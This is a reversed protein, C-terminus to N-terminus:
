DDVHEVQSVLAPAILLLLPVLPLVPAAPWDITPYPEYRFADVNARLALSTLVISLLAAASVLHDHRTAREIIYRTPRMSGGVPQHRLALIGVVLAAVGGWGAWAIGTVLGYAGVLGGGLLLVWATGSSWTSQVMRTSRSGFGRAELVEAMRMSRDLGGAIVPNVLSAAGRIGRVDHGRVASAERIEGIAQATQPILNLATAGAVAFGTMREPLMRAVAAWRVHRSVTIWTLIAGSVAWAALLGYVVANWTFPGSFFWYGDPISVIVQRGTRATAVNFVVALIGIVALARLQLRPSLSGQSPSRVSGAVALVMLTAIALPYPNRSLLFPFTAAAGWILWTRTILPPSM